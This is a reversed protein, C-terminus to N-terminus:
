GLRKSRIWESFRLKAAKIIAAYKRAHEYSLGLGDVVPSIEGSKTYHDFQAAAWLRSELVDLPVRYLKCCEDNVVSEVFLIFAPTPEMLIRGQTEPISRKM